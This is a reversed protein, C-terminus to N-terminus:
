LVFYLVVLIAIVLGGLIGTLRLEPLVNPMQYATGPQRRPLPAPRQAAAHVPEAPLAAARPQNAAAPLARPKRTSKGRKRKAPM